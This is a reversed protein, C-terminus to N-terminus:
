YCLYTEQYHFHLHFFPLPHSLLFPHLEIITLVIIVKHIHTYYVCLIIEIITKQATGM